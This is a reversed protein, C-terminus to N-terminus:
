DDVLMSTKCVELSPTFSGCSKTLDYFVVNNYITSSFVVKTSFVIKHVIFYWSTERETKKRQTENKQEGNEDEWIEEWDTLTKLRVTTNRTRYPIYPVFTYIVNLRNLHCTPWVRFLTVYYKIPFTTPESYKSCPPWNCFVKLVVTKSFPLQNCLKIGM